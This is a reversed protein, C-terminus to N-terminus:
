ALADQVLKAVDTTDATEVPSSRMMMVLDSTLAQVRDLERMLLAVLERPLAGRRESSDDHDASAVLVLARKIAVLSARADHALAGVAVGFSSERQRSREVLQNVLRQLRDLEEVSSPTALHDVDGEVLAELRRVTDQLPVVAARSALRGILVSAAVISASGFVFAVVFTSDTWSLPEVATVVVVAPIVLAAAVGGAVILTVRRQLTARRAM